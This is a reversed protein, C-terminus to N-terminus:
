WVPPGWEIHARIAENHEDLWGKGRASDLMASFRGDWDDPVQGAALRRVGAVTVVAEGTPLLSGLGDHELAESLLAPDGGHAEVHFKGCDDPDRLTVIPPGAGLDVDIVV